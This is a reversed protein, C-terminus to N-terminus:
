KYAEQKEILNRLISFSLMDLALDKFSNGDMTSILPKILNDYNTAMRIIQNSIVLCNGSNGLMSAEKQMMSIQDKDDSLTKSWKVAKPQLDIFKKLLITNNLYGKSLLGQYYYFRNHFEVDKLIEWIVDDSKHDFNQAISIAPLFYEGTTKQAQFRQNESTSPLSIQHNFVKLVNLFLASNLGLHVNLVRM